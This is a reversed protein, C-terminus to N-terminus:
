PPHVIFKLNAQLKPLNLCSEFLGLIWLVSVEWMARENEWSSWVLGARTRRAERQRLGHHDHHGVAEINGAPFFLPWLFCRLPHSFPRFRRELPRTKQKKRGPPPPRQQTTKRRRNTPPISTLCEHTQQEGNVKWKPLYFPPPPNGQLAM